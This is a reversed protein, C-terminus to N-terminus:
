KKTPQQKGARLKELDPHREIEGADYGERKASEIAQLALTRNGTFEYVLVSQFHIDANRAGTQLARAIEQLAKEAQGTLAYYLAVNARLWDDGPTASLEKEGAAIALEYNRQAEKPRNTYRYADALNGLIVATPTREQIAKEYMAAAEGYKRASFYVTALNSYAEPTPKLAISKELARSAEPYNAAYTHAGGLNRYAIYNDPTLSVAKAFSEVAEKIKRRRLWYAGFDNYGGWYNPNREIASRFLREAEKLNDKLEWVKALQILADGNAPELVLARQLEAFAQDAQGSQRDITGLTILAPALNSEIDLAETCLKRAEALFRVDRNIKYKQRYTEGIGALALAFHPDKRVAEHFHTEALDLNESRDSRAMEGIAQLYLAHAQADVTRGVAWRRRSELPIKLGLWDATKLAVTDQLEYVGSLRSEITDSRIQRLSATDVLNVIVRVSTGERLIKGNLVLTAGFTRRAESATRIRAERIESTPIVLLSREVGQFQTLKAAITEGLGESFAVSDASGGVSEFPLVAIQKEAPVQRRLWWERVPGALGALMLAVLVGAGAGLLVLRRRRRSGLVSIWAALGGRGPRPRRVEAGEGDIHFLEITGPLNKLPTPGLPRLTASLRKDVQDYVQRTLCIGGPQALPEVRAAVNVGDGFVDGDREVVDGVHLGIRVQFKRAAPSSENALAIGSQLEIACEVSALASPFQLLFGDGMTKIEEGQFEGIISRVLGRYHGLVELATTEDRRALNSYGVMDIFMIAAFKRHETGSKRM